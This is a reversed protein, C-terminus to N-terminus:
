QGLGASLLVIGIAALVAPLAYNFKLDITGLRDLLLLIGLAVAALGALILTRDVDGRRM